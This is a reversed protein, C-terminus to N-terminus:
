SSFAFDLARDVPPAHQLRGGEVNPSLLSAPFFESVGYDTANCFEGSDHAGALPEIFAFSVMGQELGLM